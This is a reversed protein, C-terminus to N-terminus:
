SRLRALNEASGARLYVNTEKETKLSVPITPKGQSRLKRVEETRKKINDNEPEVKACFRGCAKTYEHGCYIM